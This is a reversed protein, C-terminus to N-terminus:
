LFTFMTPYVTHRIQITSGMTPTAPKLLSQIRRHPECGLVGGGWVTLFQTPTCGYTLYPTLDGFNIQAGHTCSYENASVGCSGGEVRMQARIRPASNTPWSLRCRNQLGRRAGRGEALQPSFVMMVLHVCSLSWPQNVTNELIHSLDEQCFCLLNPPVSCLFVTARYKHFILFNGSLDHFKLNFFPIRTSYM